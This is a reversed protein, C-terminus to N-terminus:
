LIQVGQGNRHIVANEELEKLYNYISGISKGVKESAEEVTADPKSKYFQLLQDLSKQKTTTVVKSNKNELKSKLETELKEKELKLKSLQLNLNTKEQILNSIEIELDAFKSDMISKEQILNSISVKFTEIEDKLTSILIFNEENKLRVKTLNKIQSLFTEFSLLLIISPLAALSQGIWSNEAHVVNFIGAVLSSGIIVSWQWMSSQGEISRYLANLSFVVMGFELLLPIIFPISVGHQASLDTLSNFSLIFSLFALTLTLIGTIWAILTRM